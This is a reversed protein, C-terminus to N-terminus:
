QLATCISTTLQLCRSQCEQRFHQGAVGLRDLAIIEDVSEDAVTHKDIHVVGTHDSVNM